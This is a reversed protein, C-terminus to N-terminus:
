EMENENLLQIETDVKAMFCQEKPLKYQGFYQQQVGNVFMQQKFMPVQPLIVHLSQGLDSGHVVQTSIQGQLPINHIHQQCSMVIQEKSVDQPVPIHISESTITQQYTIKGQSTPLPPHSIHIIHPNQIKTTTSQQYVQILHPIAQTAHIQEM